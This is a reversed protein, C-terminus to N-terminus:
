PPPRCRAPCRPTIMLVRVPAFEAQGFAFQDFDGRGIGADVRPGHHALAYARVRKSSSPWNSWQAVGKALSKPMGLMFESTGIDSSSGIGRTGAGVDHAHAEDPNAPANTSVIVRQAM